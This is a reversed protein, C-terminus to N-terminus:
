TYPVPSLILAHSVIMAIAIVDDDCIYIYIRDYTGGYDFLTWVGSTGSIVGVSSGSSDTYKPYTINM